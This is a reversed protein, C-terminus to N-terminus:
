ERQAATLFCRSLGPLPQHVHTAFGAHTLKRILMDADGIETELNPHLELVIRRALSLESGASGLIEYEAGECAIKLLDCPETLAEALTMAPVEIGRGFITSARGNRDRADNSVGGEAGFISNRTDRLPHRHLLVTQRGTGAVAFRRCEIDFPACNAVMRRFTEPDPEYTTVQAGRAAALMAFIGVNGGIEVVRWGQQPVFGPIDYEGRMWIDEILRYTAQNPSQEVDVGKFRIQESLGFRFKLLSIPDIGNVIGRLWRRLRRERFRFDFDPDEGAFRRVPGSNREYDTSM